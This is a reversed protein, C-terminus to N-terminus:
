RANPPQHGIERSEGAGRLVGRWVEAEGPWALAELQAAIVDETPIILSESEIQEADNPFKDHPLIRSAIAHCAWARWTRVESRPGSMRTAYHQWHRRPNALFQGNLDPRQGLIWAVQAYPVPHRELVAESGDLDASMARNLQLLAQAPLGQRWKSQAYRLCFEYFAEGRGGGLARSDASTLVREIPPLIPCPTNPVADPM